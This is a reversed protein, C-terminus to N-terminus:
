PVVALCLVCSRCPLGLRNKTLIHGIAGCRQQIVERKSRIRANIADEEAISEALLAELEDQILQREETGDIGTQKAM